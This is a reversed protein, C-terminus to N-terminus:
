SNEQHLCESDKLYNHLFDARQQFEKQLRQLLEKKGHFYTTTLLKLHSIDLDIGQLLEYIEKHKYCHLIYSLVIQSIHPNPHLLLKKLEKKDAGRKLCDLRAFLYEIINRYKSTYMQAYPTTFNKLVFYYEKHGLMYDIAAFVHDLQHKHWSTIFPRAEDFENFRIIHQEIKAKEFGM